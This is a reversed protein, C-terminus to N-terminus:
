GKGPGSEPTVLRADLGATVLVELMEQMPQAAGQAVVAWGERPEHTSM